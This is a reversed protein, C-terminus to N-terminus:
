LFNCWRSNTVDSQNKTIRLLEPTWIKRLSSFALYLCKGFIYVRTTVIFQFRNRLIKRILNRKKVVSRFKAVTKTIIDVKHKSLIMMIDRKTLSHCSMISVRHFGQKSKRRRSFILARVYVKPYVHYLLAVDPATLTKGWHGVLLPLTRETEPKEKPAVFKRIGIESLVVNNKIGGTKPLFVHEHFHYPLIKKQTEM